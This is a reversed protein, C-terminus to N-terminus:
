RDQAVHGYDRHGRGEGFWRWPTPAFFSIAEFVAASIEHPGRLEQSVGAAVPIVPSYEEQYHTLLDHDLFYALGIPHDFRHLSGAYLEEGEDDLLTSRNLGAANFTYYTFDGVIASASALGGGLSHGTVILGNTIRVSAKVGDGIEMAAAYQESYVGAAQWINDDWDDLSAGDTGGFALIYTDPGQTFDQYVAANFGDIGNNSGLLAAIEIPIDLDTLEGRSLLHQAFQPTDARTYINRSAVASRLRVDDQLRSYFSDPQVVIYKVADSFGAGDLEQGNAILVAKITENPKGNTDVGKLTKVGEAERVGAAYVTIIGSTADYALEALTYEQNNPYIRVSDEGATGRAADATAKDVTWLEITGASTVPEFDFRIKIEQGSLGAGVDLILPTFNSANEGLDDTGYNQRILKGLAYPHVELFEEWTSRGPGDGNNDSDIDLDLSVVTVKVTDADHTDALAGHLPTVLDTFLSSEPGNIALSLNASGVDIGEVWVSAPMDALRWTTGLVIEHDKTAADWIRIRHKETEPVVLSAVYDDAYADSRLWYALEARVLDDENAVPGFLENLDANRNANDDDFNLGIVRGAGETEQEETLGMTLKARVAKGVEITGTATNGRNVTSHRIDTPDDLDHEVWGQPNNIRYSFSDLGEFDVQPEYKFEGNLENWSWAAAHQPPTVLEFRLQDLLEGVESDGWVDREEDLRGVGRVNDELPGAPNVGIVFQDDIALPSFKYGRVNPWDPHDYQSMGNLM